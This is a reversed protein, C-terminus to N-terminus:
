RLQMTDAATSHFQQFFQVHLRRGRFRPLPATGSDALLRPGADMRPAATPVPTFIYSPGGPHSILPSFSFFDPEKDPVRITSKHTKYGRFEGLLGLLLNTTNGGKYSPVQPECFTSLKVLSNRLLEFRARISLATFLM